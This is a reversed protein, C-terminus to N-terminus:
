QQESTQQRILAEMMLELRPENAHGHISVHYAVGQHRWAYAVHASYYGDDTAPVRCAEVTEGALRASHCRAPEVGLAGHLQEDLLKRTVPGWAVQMTWHGGNAEVSRGHISSLSGSVLDLVFSGQYGSASAIPAANQVVLPGVPVLPPCGNVGPPAYAALRACAQQYAAALTRTLQLAAEASTEGGTTAAPSPSRSTSEAGATHDVGLDGGGCHTLVALCLVLAGTAVDLRRM